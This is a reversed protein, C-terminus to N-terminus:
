EDDDRRCGPFEDRFWADLSFCGTKHHLLHFCVGLLCLNKVFNSRQLIDWMWRSDAAIEPPYAFMAPGHVTATVVVVFVGLALAAIRLRLRYGLLIFGGWTVLWLGVLISVARPWPVWDPILLRILDDQFLHEGGLGLFIVCFLGRFALETVDDRKMSSIATM